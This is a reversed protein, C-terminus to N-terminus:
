LVDMVLINNEYIMCSVTRNDNLCIDDAYQRATDYDNFEEHIVRAKNNSVQTTIVEYKKM